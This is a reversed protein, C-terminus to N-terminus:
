GGAAKLNRQLRVLSQQSDEPIRGTANEIPVNITIAGGVQKIAEVFALLEKDTYHCFQNPVAPNFTLDLPLLCHWQVGDIFPADPLYTRTEQGRTAELCSM